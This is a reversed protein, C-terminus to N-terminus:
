AFKPYGFILFIPSMYNSRPFIPSLTSALAFPLEAIMATLNAIAPQGRTCSISNTRMIFTRADVHTAICDDVHTTCPCGYLPSLTLSPGEAIAQEEEERQQNWGGVRRNHGETWLQILRDIIQADPEATPDVM